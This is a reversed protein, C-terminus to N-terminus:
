LSSGSSNGAGTYDMGFYSHSAHPAHQLRSITSAGTEALDERNSGFERRIMEAAVGAPRAYRRASARRVPEFRDETIEAPALTRITFPNSPIGDALIQVVATYKPLNTLDQPTVQDPYKSLMKALKEADEAGTQFVIRSGVNGALAAAIDEDLQELFQHSGILGVRYKRIESLMAAFSPTTFNHLEDVYLYFDRREEEPVDARSMAAQQIATVVLSGLLRANIEGLKGKSLPVILVSGEDMVRRLELASGQQGVICRIKRSMLFPRLKNQIASLAETRYRDNWSRFEHQWFMRVVEDEIHATLRERYSADSLMMLLNVLTMGKEVLVHLANRLTDKLRPTNGLDYVKEFAALVGDAVLDRRGPASCALPNFGVSFEDDAPDFLIVDNTRHRPVSRAVADALDGHPDIVCLGAGREIDGRIQNLLLTSKGVGTRGLVHVHRLREERGIGVLRDEDRFLVRGVVCEGESEGSAYMAVPPPLERFATAALLM